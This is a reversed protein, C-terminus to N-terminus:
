CCVKEYVYTKTSHHLESLRKKIIIPQDHKKGFAFLCNHAYDIITIFGELDGPKLATCHYMTGINTCYNCFNTLQFCLKNDIIVSKMFHTINGFKGCGGCYPKKETSICTNCDKCLQCDHNTEMAKSNYYMIKDFKIHWCGYMGFVTACNKIKLKYVNTDLNLYKLCKSILESAKVNKDFVDKELSSYCYLKFDNLQHNNESNYRTKVYNLFQCVIRHKYKRQKKHSM